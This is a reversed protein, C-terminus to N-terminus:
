TKRLIQRLSDTLGTETILEDIESLDSFNMFANGPFKRSELMLIRKRSHLIMERRVDGEEPSDASLEGSASLMSATFFCIDANYNRISLVADRGVLAYSGNMLRGGTVITQVGMESLLYANKVGNTIVIVDKFAALYPVLQHVTESGDMFIVDGHNLFRSAAKAIKQREAYYAQELVEKPATEEGIRYNLQASGHLRTILGKEEMRALDRRLTAPSVYLREGIERNKVSQRGKLISIIKAERDNYNM